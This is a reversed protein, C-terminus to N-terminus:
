ITVLVVVLDGMQVQVRHLVIVLRPVLGVADVVGVVVREVLELLGHVLHLRLLVFLPNLDVALRLVGVPVLLHRFVVVLAIVRVAILMWHVGIVLVSEVAGLRIVVM